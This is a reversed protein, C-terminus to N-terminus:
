PPDACGTAPVVASRPKAASELFTLAERTREGLARGWQRALNGDGAVTESRREARRRLVAEALAILDVRHVRELFESDDMASKVEPDLALDLLALRDGDAAEQIKKLREESEVLRRLAPCDNFARIEPRRDLWEAEEPTLSRLVRVARLYAFPAQVWGVPEFSPARPPPAFLGAWLAVGAGLGLAVGGTRGLRSAPRKRLRCLAFGSVASVALYVAACAAALGAWTDWGCLAALREHLAPGVWLSVTGAMVMALLWLALRGAGARYGLLSLLVALAATLLEGM